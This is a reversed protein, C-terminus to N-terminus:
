LKAITASLTSFLNLFFSVPREALLQDLKVKVTPDLEGRPARPSTPGDSVM